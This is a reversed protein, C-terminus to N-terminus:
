NQGFCQGFKCSVGAACKGIAAANVPQSRSRAALGRHHTHWAHILATTALRGWYKGNPCQAALSHCGHAEYIHGPCKKGDGAPLADSTPLM